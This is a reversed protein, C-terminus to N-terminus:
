TDLAAKWADVQPLGKKRAREEELQKTSLDKLEQKSSETYFFTFGEPGHEPRVASM